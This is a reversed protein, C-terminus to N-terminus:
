KASELKNSLLRFVSEATLADGFNWSITGHRAEIPHFTITEDEVVIYRVTDLNVASSNGKLDTPTSFWM